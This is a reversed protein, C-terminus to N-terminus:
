KLVKCNNLQNTRILKNIKATDGNTCECCEYKELYPDTDIALNLLDSSSYNLTSNVYDEISISLFTDGCM